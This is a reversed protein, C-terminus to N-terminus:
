FLKNQFSTGPSPSSGERRLARSELLREDVLESMGANDKNRGFTPTQTHCNPCLIRLNEERDDLFNGNLHDIQLVLDKGNWWPDQGCEECM